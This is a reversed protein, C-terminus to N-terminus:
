SVAEFQDAQFSRSKVTAEVRVPRKADAEGPGPFPNLHPDSPKTKAAATDVAISKIWHITNQLFFVGSASTLEIVIQHPLM